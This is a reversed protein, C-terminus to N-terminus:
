VYELTVEGMSALQTLRGLCPQARLPHVLGRGVVGVHAVHQARAELELLEAVVARKHEVEVVVPLLGREYCIGAPEPVLEAKRERKVPM